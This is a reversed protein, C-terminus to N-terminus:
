AIRGYSELATKLNQNEALLRSIQSKLAKIQKHESLEAVSTTKYKKVFALAQHYGESNKDPLNAELYEVQARIVTKKSELKEDINFIPNEQKILESELDKIHSKLVREVSENKVFQFWHKNNQRHSYRRKAFNQTIGLYLLQGNHDFFRYLDSTAHARDLELLKLFKANDLM